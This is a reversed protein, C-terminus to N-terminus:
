RARPAVGPRPRKLIEAAVIANKMGISRLMDAASQASSRAKLEYAGANDKTQRKESEINAAENVDIQTDVNMQAAHDGDHDCEGENTAYSGVYAM